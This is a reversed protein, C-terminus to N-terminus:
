NAAAQVKSQYIPRWVKLDLNLLTGGAEFHQIFIQGLTSTAVWAVGPLALMSAVHGVVPVMKLMSGLGIRGIGDAAVSGTLSALLSKVWYSSFREGYLGGLAHVMKTQVASIAAIDAMPMPILGAAASAAAYKSVIRAARDLKPEESSSSDTADPSIPADTAM